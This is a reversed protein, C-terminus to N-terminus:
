AATSRAVVSNSSASVGTGIVVRGVVVQAVEVQLAPVLFLSQGGILSGDLQPRVEHRGMHVDREDVVGLASFSLASAENRRAM